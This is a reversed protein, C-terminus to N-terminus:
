LLDFASLNELLLYTALLFLAMSKLIETGSLSDTLYWLLNRLQRLKVPDVRGDNDWCEWHKHNAGSVRVCYTDIFVPQQNSFLYLM